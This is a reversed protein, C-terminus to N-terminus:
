VGKTEEGESPGRDQSTEVQFIKVLERLIHIIAAPTGFVTDLDIAVDLARTQYRKPVGSAALYNFVDARFAADDYPEVYAHKAYLEEFTM